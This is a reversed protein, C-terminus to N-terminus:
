WNMYRVEWNGSRNDQWVIHVVGDVACVRPNIAMGSSGSIREPDQWIKGTHFSVCQYIDPTGRRFDEWVVVIGSGDCSIDPNWAQVGPKSIMMAPRWYNGNDISASFMIHWGETKNYEAWVMYIIGSEAVALRPQAAINGPTGLSKAHSTDVDIGDSRYYILESVNKTTRHEYVEHIRGNAWIMDIPSRVFRTNPDRNGFGNGYLSDPLKITLDMSESTGKDNGLCISKQKEGWAIWSHKGGTAVEPPFPIVYGINQFGRTLWEGSAQRHALNVGWFLEDNGNIDDHLISYGNMGVIVEGDPAIEVDAYVPTGDDYVPGGTTFYPFDDAVVETEDWTLGYDQSEKLLISRREEGSNSNRESWVVHVNKGSVVMSPRLSPTYTKSLSISGDKEIQTNVLSDSNDEKYGPLMESLVRGEAYPMSFGLLEAVTPAIDILDCRTSVELGQSIDPGIALFPVHRHSHLEAGHRRYDRHDRGHDSTVILTTKDKYQPDSQIYKWLNYVHTDADFIAQEYDEFTQGQLAHGTHDVNYLNILVLSPHYSNAYDYFKKMVAKDGRDAKLAAGYEEGLSPHISYDADSCQPNGIILLAKRRPLDYKKRYNEFITPTYDRILDYGQGLSLNSLARNGCVISIHAQSTVTRNSSYVSTYITGRPRLDNWIHPINKHTPDEFAETNRLGDIVVIIVNETSYQTLPEEEAVYGLEGAISMVDAFVFTDNGSSVAYSNSIGSLGAIIVSVIFSFNIIGYNKKYRFKMM